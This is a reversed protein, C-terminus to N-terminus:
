GTDPGRGARRPRRTQRDKQLQSYIKQWIEFPWRNFGITVPVELLSKNYESEKGDGSLWYPETRIDPYDPGDGCHTWSVTPTVSCDVQYGCTILAKVTDPGLGWRGARFSLPKRGCLSILKDTLANIKALQLEYPLNKLMSNRENIKEQLPPTDWPHLHAGIECKNQSLLDSLIDVAWNCSVVSYTALYTPKLGYRDFVKQHRPIIRVNEVASNSGDFGWNAEEVEITVILNLDPSTM